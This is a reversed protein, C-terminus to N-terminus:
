ISLICLIQIILLIYGIFKCFPWSLLMFLCSSSLYLSLACVGNLIFIPSLGWSLSLPIAIYSALPVFPSLSLCISIDCFRLFCSCLFLHFSLFPCVCLCPCQFPRLCCCFCLHLCVMQSLSDSVFLYLSLSSVLFPMYIYTFSYIFGYIFASVVLCTSLASLLCVLAFIGSVLVSIIKFVFAFSLDKHAADVSPLSVCTLLAM